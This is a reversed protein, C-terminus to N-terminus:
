SHTSPTDAYPAGVLYDLGTHLSKAIAYIMGISPDHQCEHEIRWITPYSTGAEKALQHMSKGQLLRLAHIRQGLGPIAFHGRM